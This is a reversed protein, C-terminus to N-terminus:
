KVAKVDAASIYLDDETIYWEAGDKDTVTYRIELTDGKALKDVRKSKADSAKSYTYTKKATVKVTRNIPQAEPHAFHDDSVLLEGTVYWISTINSFYTGISGGEKSIMWTDELRCGKQARFAIM